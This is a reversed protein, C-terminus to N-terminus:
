IEINTDRRGDVSVRGSLLELDCGIQEDRRLLISGNETSEVKM